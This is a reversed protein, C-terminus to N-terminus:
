TYSIRKLLISFHVIAFYPSVKLFCTLVPMHLATVRNVLTESFFFLTIISAASAGQGIGMAATLSTGVNAVTTMTRPCVHDIGGNYVLCVQSLHSQIDNIDSM